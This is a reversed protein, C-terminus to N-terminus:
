RLQGQEVMEVLVPKIKRFQEINAKKWCFPNFLEWFTPPSILDYARNIYDDMRWTGLVFTSPPHKIPEWEGDPNKVETPYEETNLINKYFDLVEDCLIQASKLEKQTERYDNWGKVAYFLPLLITVSVSM